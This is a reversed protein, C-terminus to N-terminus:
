VVCFSIWCSTVRSEHYLEGVQDIQTWCDVDPTVQAALQIREFAELRLTQYHYLEEMSSCFHFPLRYVVGM